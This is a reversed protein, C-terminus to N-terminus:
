YKIFCATENSVHVVILRVISIASCLSRSSQLIRRQIRMQSRSACTVPFMAIDDQRLGPRRWMTLCMVLLRALDADDPGTRMAPFPSGSWYFFLCLSSLSVLISISNPSFYLSEAEKKKKGEKKLIHKQEILM